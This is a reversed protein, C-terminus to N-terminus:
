KGVTFKVRFAPGGLDNEGFEASVGNEGLADPVWRYFGEVNVGLWKWLPAEVGGFLHYSTHSDSVNDGATSFDGTESYSVRGVGGGLYPTM